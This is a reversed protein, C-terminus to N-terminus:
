RKIGVRKSKVLIVVLHKNLVTFLRLTTVAIAQTSLMELMYLPCTELSVSGKM